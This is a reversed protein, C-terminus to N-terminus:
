VMRWCNAEKVYSVVLDPAQMPIFHTLDTRHIDRGIQMSDALEAWTHSVTLAFPDEGEGAKRARIISTPATVKPIANHIVDGNQNLYVRVEHSPACALKRVGSEDAETLAHACYDQVIRDQWYIFPERDKFREYMDEPGAWETRRRSVPHSEPKMFGKVQDLMQYRKPSMVVPDLLVLERIQGPLEAAVVTALYGGISHGVLVVDNLELKEILKKIDGAMLPWEVEGEKSSLGHFRLDVAYVHQDGLQEIIYDWCRSHFGTAHLLVIPSGRGQWEWVNLCVDELDIYHQVPEKHM